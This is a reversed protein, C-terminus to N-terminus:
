LELGGIFERLMSTKPVLDFDYEPFPSYIDILDKIDEARTGVRDPDNLLKKLRATMVCAEYAFSTNVAIDVTELYPWINIENGLLVNDWIDFTRDAVSRRFYADRVLRRIFRIKENDAVIEGNREYRGRIGAYVRLQSIDDFGEATQPVLAQIGEVLIIDEPGIKALTGNLNKEGTRFDFIPTYAEGHDFLERIREHLLEVNINSIGEYYPRGNHYEPPAKRYLYSFDDLSLAVTHRGRRELAQGLRRSTTTKGSSSPGVLLILRANRDAAMDAAADLEQQYEAEAESILERPDAKIVSDIDYVREPKLVNLTSYM